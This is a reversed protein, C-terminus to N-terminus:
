AVTATPFTSMVPLMRQWATLGGLGSVFSMRNKLVKGQKNDTVLVNGAADVAVGTPAGGGTPNLGTIVTTQM